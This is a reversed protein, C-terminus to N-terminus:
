KVLIESAEYMTHASDWALFLPNIDREQERGGWLKGSDQLSFDSHRNTASM